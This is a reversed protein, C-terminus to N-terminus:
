KYQLNRSSSKRQSVVNHTINHCCYVLLVIKLLSLLLSVELLVFSEGSQLGGDELKRGHHDHAAGPAWGIRTQRHTVEARAARVTAVLSRLPLSKEQVNGAFCFSRDEDRQIM